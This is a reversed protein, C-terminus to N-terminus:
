AISSNAHLKPELTIAPKSVLCCCKKTIRKQHSCNVMCAAQASHSLSVATSAHLQLAKDTSHCVFQCSQISSAAVQSTAHAHGGISSQRPAFSSAQQPPPRSSVIYCPLAYSAICPDLCLRFTQLSAAFAHNTDACEEPQVAGAHMIAVHLICFLMMCYAFCTGCTQQSPRVAHLSCM